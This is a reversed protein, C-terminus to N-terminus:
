VRAIGIKKKIQSIVDDTQEYSIKGKFNKRSCGEMFERKQRRDRFKLEKVRSLDCDRLYVHRCMSLDLKEPLNKASYLVVISGIGFKLEKVPTLDCYCLDVKSCMSLDLIEPLNKAGQLSVEAGKRFNLNIGAVDSWNLGVKGCMSIDLDSPINKVSDFKVEAGNKFKLKKIQSLDYGGISVYSCMSVDLDEPINTTRDFIVTANEGFKFDVGDLDCYSFDVYKCKFVDLCKPLNKAERLYLKANKGFSMKRIKSLDCYQFDANRTNDYYVVLNDKTLTKLDKKSGIVIMDCVANDYKKINKANVADFESKIGCVIAMDELEKLVVGDHERGDVCSLIFEKYPLIQEKTTCNERINKLVKKIHAFHNTKSLIEMAFKPTIVGGDRVRTRNIWADVEFINMDTNNIAVFM